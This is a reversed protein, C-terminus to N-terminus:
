ISEDSSIEDDSMEAMYTKKFETIDWSGCTIFRFGTTSKGAAVKLIEIGMQKAFYMTFIVSPALVLFFITWKVFNKQMIEEGRGAQYYLGCYITIILVFLSINEMNNLGQDYYPKLRLQIMFFLVFVLIATLSQVGASVPALFTLMLVILTKRMLLVIEWYYYTDDYGATLFGLRM